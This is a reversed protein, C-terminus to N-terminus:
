NKFNLCHNHFVFHLSWSYTWPKISYDVSPLLFHISCISFILIIIIIRCPLSDYITVLLSVPSMYVASKLMKLPWKTFHNTLETLFSVGWCKQESGRSLVKHCFDGSTCTLFKIESCWRLQFALYFVPYWNFNFKM